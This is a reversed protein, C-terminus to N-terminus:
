IHVLTNKVMRHVAVLQQTRITMGADGSIGMGTDINGAAPLITDTLIRDTFLAMKFLIGLSQIAGVIFRERLTIQLGRYTGIAVTNVINAQRVLGVRFDRCGTGLAVSVDVSLIGLTNM